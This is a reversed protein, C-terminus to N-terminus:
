CLEGPKKFITKGCFEFDSVGKAISESHGLFLIGGPKLLDFYRPILKAQTEKDFYILVNRCFIVDFLGSFPWTHLLNLQKFTILSNLDPHVKVLDSNEGTGYKFWRTRVAKDLDKIRESAYVGSNATAVVDSDLDTALIRADWNALEAGMTESLTIAISYAEEGTSCASSWIRLKKSDQSRRSQSVIRPIVKQALFDFHHPERYFSTLNTTISNIFSPMEVSGNNKLLVCYESFSALSLEKTRKRLRRYLMERKREDLVIGSADYVLKCIFSFEKDSLAQAEVGLNSAQTRNANLNM